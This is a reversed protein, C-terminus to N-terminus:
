EMMDGAEEMAEEAENGGPTPILVGDIVHIVGNDAEIDTKIVQINDNLMVKEGDVNISISQGNVTEAEDLGVVDAAMVKGSVVHYLLISKLTEKNEPKLLTDVTGTPLAEFAEDKPAFVTFPGDGQLTEVLEAAQLAAVLTNFSGAEQAIAVITKGDTMAKDSKSKKDGYDGALASAGAFSLGAVAVAATAFRLFNTRNM